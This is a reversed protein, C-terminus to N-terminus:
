FGARFHAFLNPSYHPIIRGPAGGLIGMAYGGNTSSGPVTVADLRRGIRRKSPKAGHRGIAVIRRLGKHCQAYRSISAPL